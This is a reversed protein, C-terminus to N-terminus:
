NNVRQLRWYSSGMAPAQGTSDATAFWMGPVPLTQPNLSIPYVVMDPHPNRKSAAKYSTSALWVGRGQFTNPVTAM